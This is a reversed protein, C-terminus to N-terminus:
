QQNIICIKRLIDYDDDSYYLLTANDKQIEPMSNGNIEKMKTWKISFEQVNLPNTIIHMGNVTPITELITGGLEFILDKINQIEQPTFGDTDVIWRKPKEVHLSGSISNFANKINKYEKNILCDAVKKVMQLGLQEFNRRNLNIYIRAKHFKALMVMEPLLKDLSEMSRISYTSIQMRYSTHDPNDKKRKLIQIFYFDNPDEWKLLQKIINLNNITM